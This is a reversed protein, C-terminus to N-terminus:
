ISNKIQESLFEELDYDKLYNIAFKKIRSNSNYFKLNGNVLRSSFFFNYDYKKDNGEDIFKIRVIFIAEGYRDSFEKKNLDFSVLPTAVINKDIIGIKEFNFDGFYFKKLNEKRNFAILISNYEVAMARRAGNNRIKFEIGIKSSEDINQSIKVTSNLVTLNPKDLLFKKEEFFVLAESKEVTKELVNIQKFLNLEVKNLSTDINTLNKEADDLKLLSQSLGTNIKGISDLINKATNVLEQNKNRKQRLNEISLLFFSILLFWYLFSKYRSKLKDVDPFLQRLILFISILLLLFEIIM